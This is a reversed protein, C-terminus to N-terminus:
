LQRWRSNIRDCILEIEGKPGGRNKEISLTLQQDAGSASDGNPIYLFLVAFADQEIAGSGRLNALTPKTKENSTERNLQSLVLWAATSRKAAKRVNNSAETTMEYQGDGASQMIQLYDVVVLDTDKTVHANVFGSTPDAKGYVTLKGPFSQVIDLGELTGAKGYKGINEARGMRYGIERADMEISIFVVNKGAKLNHRITHMALDTKGVGPRAALITVRGREMGGHFGDFKSFGIEMINTPDHKEVAQRIDALTWVDSDNELTKLQMLELLESHQIEGLSYKVVAERYETAKYERNLRAVAKNVEDCFVIKFDDDNLREIMQLEDGGADMFCNVVSHIDTWGEAVTKEFALQVQRLMPDRLNVELCLLANYVESNDVSFVMARAVREEDYTTKKKETSM